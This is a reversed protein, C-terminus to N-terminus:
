IETLLFLASARHLPLTILNGSQEGISYPTDHSDDLCTIRFARRSAGKGKLRLTRISSKYVSVLIAGKGNDDMGALVKINPEGSVAKIRRPHELMVAFARMAYWTKFPVGFCDFLGWIVSATYFCGMTLPSDQWASLVATTFAASEGDSLRKRAQETYEWTPTYHWENLHLETETFGHSDLVKRVRAPEDVIEELCTPYCHWSYFDLPAKEKRCYKLFDDTYKLPADYQVPCSLAPGGIKVYSFREKIQKAARTYLEYYLRDDGSWMHPKANPENWIEWYLIKWSYGNAWGENYHRIINICIRIWKDFDAPPFAYYNRISHEISTGLRYIIGTGLSLCNGIYDDTQEFYYNRPDNEDAEWNGFIHQIDVLRMGPNDLPVDHLRAFPIKLMKYADNLNRNKQNHLKPALNVGNLARIRGNERGFDFQITANM